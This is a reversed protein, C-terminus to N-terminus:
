DKVCRVTLGDDKNSTKRSITNDDTNFLTRRYLSSGSYSTSTWYNSANPVPFDETISYYMCNNIFGTPNLSMEIDNTGGWDEDILKQRLGFGRNSSRLNVEDLPMGILIECEMWEIDTSVHWGSPCINREDLVAHGNYLHGFSNQYQTNIFSEIYYSESNVNVNPNWESIDHQRIIDEGNSFKETRLDEKFWCRGDIEILDYTYGNYEIADSDCRYSPTNITGGGYDTSEELSCDDGYFGDPCVCTGDICVGDNLCVTDECPNTCSVIFLTALLPYFYNKFM